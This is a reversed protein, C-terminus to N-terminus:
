QFPPDSHAFVPHEKAVKRIANHFDIDFVDAKRAIQSIEHASVYSLVYTRTAFSLSRRVLNNGSLLKLGTRTFFKSAHGHTFLIQFDLIIIYKVFVRTLPFTSHSLRYKVFHREKCTMFYKFYHYFTPKRCIREFYFM